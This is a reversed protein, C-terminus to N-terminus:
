PPVYRIGAEPRWECSYVCIGCLGGGQGLKMTSIGQNPINGPIKKLQPVQSHGYKGSKKRLM